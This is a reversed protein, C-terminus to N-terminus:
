FWGVLKHFGRVAAEWNALIGVVAALVVIAGLIRKKMKRLM